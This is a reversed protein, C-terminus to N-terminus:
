DNENFPIGADNLQERWNEPRPKAFYVQNILDEKAIFENTAKIGKEINETVFEICEPTLRDHWFPLLKKQLYSQMYTLRGNYIFKEIQTTKPLSQVNCIAAREQDSLQCGNLMLSLAENLKILTYTEHQRNLVEDINYIIRWISILQLKPYAFTFNPIEALIFTCKYQNMLKNYEGRIDNHRNILKHLENYEVSYKQKVFKPYDQADANEM